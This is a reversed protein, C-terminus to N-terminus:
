LKVVSFMFVTILETMKDTFLIKATNPEYTGVNIATIKFVNKTGKKLPIKLEKRKRTVIYNSIIEVGNESLFKALEVVGSKDSVSILCRSIKQLNIM